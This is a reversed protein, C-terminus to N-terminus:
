HSITQHCALPPQGQSCTAQWASDGGIAIRAIEFSQVSPSAVSSPSRCAGASRREPSPTPGLHYGLHLPQDVPHVRVAHAAELGLDLDRRFSAGTLDDLAEPPGSRAKAM